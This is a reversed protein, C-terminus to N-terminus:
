PRELEREISEYCTDCLSVEDHRTNRVRLELPESEADRCNVCHDGSM